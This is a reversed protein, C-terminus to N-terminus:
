KYVLNQRRLYRSLFVSFHFFNPHNFAMLLLALRCYWFDSYSKQPSALSPWNVFSSNVQLNTSISIRLATPGSINPGIRNMWLLASTLWFRPEADNRGNNANRRARPADLKRWCDNVCRLYGRWGGTFSTLRGVERNEYDTSTVRMRPYKVSEAAM